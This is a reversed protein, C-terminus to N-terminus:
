QALKLRQNDSTKIIFYMFLYIFLYIFLVKERIRCWKRTIHSNQKCHSKGIEPAITGLQKKDMPGLNHILLAFSCSPLHLLPTAGLNARALVRRGTTSNWFFLCCHCYYFCLSRCSDIQCSRGEHPGEGPLQHIEDFDGLYDFIAFSM